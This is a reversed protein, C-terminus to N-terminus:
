EREFAIFECGTVDVFLVKAGKTLALTLHILNFCNKGLLEKKVTYYHEPNNPSYVIQFDSSRNIRAM